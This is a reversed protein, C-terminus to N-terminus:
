GRGPDTGVPCRLLGLIGGSGPLSFDSRESTAAGDFVGEELSTYGGSQIERDVEELLHAGRGGPSFDKEMQRDWEEEELEELWEALQKRDSESLHVIAEKIKEVTM